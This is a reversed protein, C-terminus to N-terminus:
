TQTAELLEKGASAMTIAMDFVRMIAAHGISDNVAIHDGGYMRLAAARLAETVDANFRQPAVAVVAGAACWRVATACAPHATRREATMALYGRCFCREDAIRARALALVAATSLDDPNKM